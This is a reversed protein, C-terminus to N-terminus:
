IVYLVCVCQIRDTKRQEISESTSYILLSQGLFFSRFSIFAIICRMLNVNWYKLQFYILVNFICECQICEFFHDFLLLFFFHFIYSNHKSKNVICFRTEPWFFFCGICSQKMDLLGVFVVVVVVLLKGKM